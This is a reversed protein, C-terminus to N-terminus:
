KGGAPLNAKWFKEMTRRLHLSTNDRERISHTRMPYSMMTFLKNHKILENALMEFSQYHVNDDATGHIIMLNGELKFAHNIPSGNYYGEKNDDPLGMYREQYITDYLRQDSVFSVAIGTKYIEPYRFMCNMTMQGGGSWGWMGVRDADIFSFRKLIEKAAKAQDHAALIGIQRYISKRWDRGRPVNTGRNDVSMILYGQQSLYQHWLDGGGWRDQVTSSWPEGYIYFILPYKKEPDFGLPKIMWVDLIVDGIDIKFFEKHNLNLADYKEKLASNDELVTIEKHGPFSVVSIRNPSTSNQFTTIAWKADMSMQYSFQGEIEKPSVREAVGKGDIRSRYLYRQTYNTPSAIYYVYGGKEDICNIKVVDFDGKTILEMEKGNRSVKYLHRWGDKESTWTFYKENYLWQINDHIDLFADDTDTLINELKMTKVNGIWVTNRNQLRNLQQIMVENSNPIFDMRALYNNRPDGPIDFWKTEGGTVSVVGVKVASNTTGAKPYPFPIPKSYLSDINNILYFVGTGETDSQWYSITKSDPSWRFGDRCFLEEEYVWDFTGNIIRSYGDQTLQLVESSNLDEVFINNKVVYGVKRGDPSFKAFMMTSPIAFKGLQSLEGSNIDLVWYDGRTEYRWVRETNTFVLLKKGDTSWQYDSILLPNQTGKPVLQSANVLISRKGSKLNYKIIDKAMPFKDSEELTTYGSGDELWVAPGFHNLKFENDKFIRELTLVDHNEQAAIFCPLILTGFVFTILLKTKVRM